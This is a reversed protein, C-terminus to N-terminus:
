IFYTKQINFYNILINSLLYKNKYYKELELIKDNIILKNEPSNEEDILQYFKFENAMSILDTKLKLISYYNKNKLNFLNTLHIFSSKIIKFSEDFIINNNDDNKAISHNKTMFAYNFNALIVTSNARKFFLLHKADFFNFINKYISIPNSYNKLAGFFIESFNLNSFYYVKELAAMFLGAVNNVGFNQKSRVPKILYNIFIESDLNPIIKGKINHPQLSSNLLYFEFYLQFDFFIEENCKFLKILQINIMDGFLDSDGMFYEFIESFDKMTFYEIDFNTFLEERNEKFINFHFKFDKVTKFKRSYIFQDNACTVFYIAVLNHKNEEFYSLEIELPYKFVSLNTYIDFNEISHNNLKNEFIEFNCDFHNYFYDLFEQKNNM